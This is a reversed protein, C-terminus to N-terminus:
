DSVSTKVRAGRAAVLPVDENAPRARMALDVLRGAVPAEPVAHPYPHFRGLVPLHDSARRALPTAHIRVDRLGVHPRAWIRDLAVVPRLSPFTKVKPSAGLHADLVDLVRSTRRWENMDGLLLLPLDRGDDLARLLRQIQDHREKVRLGLHTVVVRCESGDSLEVDVDLAGRPERGRVSLDIYRVEHPPRRSLVANGYHGLHGYVTPGAVAHYGAEEAIAELPCATGDLRHRTDVEQLGILDANMEQLVAAVRRPDRRRDWGVAGHINWTGILHM